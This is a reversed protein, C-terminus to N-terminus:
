PLLALVVAGALGLLASDRAIGWAVARSARREDEAAAVKGGEDLERTGQAAFVVCTGRRAEFFSFAGGALPVFVFARAGVGWGLAVAGIAWGAAVVFGVWGYAMRFRRGAANINPRCAATTM